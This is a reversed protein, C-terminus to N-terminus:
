APFGPPPHPALFCSGRLVWVSLNSFHYRLMGVGGWSRLPTPPPPAAKLAVRCQQATLCHRAPAWAEPFPRQGSQGETLLRPSM